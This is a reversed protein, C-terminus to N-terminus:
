PILFQNLITFRVRKMLRNSNTDIASRGHLMLDNRFLILDGKKLKINFSLHKFLKDLNNLEEIEVETLKSFSQMTIRDYCIKYRGNEIELISREQNRFKWKKNLLKQREDESLHRLLDNLFMFTNIGQDEEASEVCLLGVTDPIQDFDACDTHLPFILNSNAISTFFNNRRTIKVDFVAKGNNNRKENLVVGLRGIFSQLEDDHPPFDKVIVLSKGQRLDERFLILDGKKLKINFSLHKFLKDLNNLEEIEVETLKSFSQMTIRDYCIKYRGNEIELISREQNRFKWKKNLLKQREDESLHRLLDNLFMFTNIGQDEEASEVCLLGVTDPIQDFDACDTHLPFILNSNAISTFFNNRRTIKVDFVAKGNNNRKENLVVGLRGIFSQLEDDHPPFDKVIVLSKGQRLDETIEQHNLDQKWNYNILLDQIEM